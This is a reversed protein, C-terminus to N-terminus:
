KDEEILTSIDGDITLFISAEGVANQLVTKCVKLADIIGAQYMDEVVKNDLADYGVTLQPSSKIENLIVQAEGNGNEIIQKLPAEISKLVLNYGLSEEDVGTKPKLQKAANVFAVDGGIVVGEELARKSENVGDEIKLKLYKVEDESSAGVKIVAIGNSLKAIREDYQDIEWKNECLERRTKLTTIWTKVDGGGDRIITFDKRSLVKGALGLKVETLKKQDNAVEAGTLEALDELCMKKSDGVGPAKIALTNFLGKLKGLVLWNLADGEVDEAILLLRNVGKQTLTDILPKVESFLSLKKDLILVPMDKYEAEGRDNTMMYPSIYGRDFKLGEAIEATIGFSNSEEATVIGEKGIKFVTDAIVEGLEESETSITAVQKLEEKSKIPRSMDQLKETIDKVAETMGRKLANANMGKDLLKIGGNVLAQFLIATATRGGGVDMSTKKVLARVKSAGKEKITDKLVVDDAIRKGDNVIEGNTLCVNKGRPGITIKMANVVIDIGEKHKEKVKDLTVVKSM